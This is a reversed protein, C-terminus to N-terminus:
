VDSLLGLRPVSRKASWADQEGKWMLRLNELAGLEEATLGHVPHGEPAKLLDHWLAVGLRKAAAEVVALYREGACTNCREPHQVGEAITRPIHRFHANKNMDAPIRVVRLMRQCDDAPFYPEYRCIPCRLDRLVVDPDLAIKYYDKCVLHGCALLKAGCLSSTYGDDAPDPYPYPLRGIVLQDHCIPCVVVHAPQNPSEIDNSLM